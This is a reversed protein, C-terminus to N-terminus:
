AGGRLVRQWAATDAPDLRPWDGLQGRFFTEQRKAYRRTETTAKEVAHDLGDLDAPLPGLERVGIAKMAPLDPDLNRALLRRAEELAGAEVMMRFRRAIREHLWPRPPALVLRAAEPGVLVPGQQQQWYSLSRGTAEMVELARLIRQTDGPELRAAMPPDVEALRRHLALSPTEAAEARLRTRIEESIEPVASLGGSLARFYLGTGGVIVLPRGADRAEGLVKGIDSLWRAVSWPEAADVHGYLRHPARALDDPSPRATLVDLDAYVQMSDANAIWAGDREALELALASKGSATPGAILTVPKAM